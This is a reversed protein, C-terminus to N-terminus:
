LITAEVEVVEEAQEGAEVEVKVEEVHEGVEVPEEHVQDVLLSPRMLGVNPVGEQILTAVQLALSEQSPASVVQVSVPLGEYEEETAVGVAGVVAAPFRALNYAITYGFKGPVYERDVVNEPLLAPSFTTPCLVVDFDGIWSIM